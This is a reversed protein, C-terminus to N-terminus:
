LRSLEKNISDLDFEEPDFGGGLWEIMDEYEENKPDQLVELLHWYGPVGGCDGPPCARKGKLCVPYRTKEDLPLIREVLIEHEWSDGFDYTYTFKTGEKRVVEGLVAEMANELGLEDVSRPDVFHKGGIEFEYLHEDWWGMAAQLTLHLKYLTIDSTVQIRRWIPPRIGKLTVKLQYVSVDHAKKGPM